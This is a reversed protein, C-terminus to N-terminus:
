GTIWSPLNRLYLILHLRLRQRLSARERFFKYNAQAADHDGLKRFRQVDEFSRWVLRSNVAARNFGALGEADWKEFLRLCDRHHEASRMLRSTDNGEFVRYNALPRNLMRAGGNVIARVWMDWDAAHVLATDFGGFREYFGRRLVAAAMQVRNGLLWDRADNSGDKLSGRESRAL